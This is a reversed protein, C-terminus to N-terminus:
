LTISMQDVVDMNRRTKAKGKKNLKDYWERPARDISPPEYDDKVSSKKIVQNTPDWVKNGAKLEARKAKWQTWNLLDESQSDLFALFAQGRAKEPSGMLMLEGSSTYGAVYGCLYNSIYDRGVKFYLKTGLPIKKKKSKLLGLLIRQEKHSFSQFITVVSVFQDVNKAVQTLDPTFCKPAIGVGKVGEKSCVEKRTSHPHGKFHLCESCRFAEALSKASAAGLVSKKLM